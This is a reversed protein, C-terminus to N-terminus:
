DCYRNTTSGTAGTLWSGIAARRERVLAYPPAPAAFPYELTASLVIPAAKAMDSSSGMGVPGAVVAGAGTLFTPRLVNM